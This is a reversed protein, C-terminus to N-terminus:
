NLWKIVLEVYKKPNYFIINKSFINYFIPDDINKDFDLSTIEVYRIPKDVLGSVMIEKKINKIKKVNKKDYILFVDIDNFNSNVISSGFICGFEILDNFKNLNYLLVKHWKPFYNIELSLIYRIFGIAFEDNYKFKYYISNGIYKKTLLNKKSLLNCLKNTHAHNLDLKKAIKRANYREKFHKFIFKLIIIETKTFQINNVSM